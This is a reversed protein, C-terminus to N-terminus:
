SYRRTEYQNHCPVRRFYAQARGVDRLIQARLQEPSEFKKEDRLRRLFEVRIRRPAPGELPALLFTEISLESGGFTPRYGTNTVSPWQHGDFDHTRTIYVGTAPLVEAETSLNLTPVTQKAGIGHGRVVEGELAFPRELLRCARSVDGAEILRRIESSSVMCRRITVSPIAEVRFGLEHGLERLLRTDGAHKYGFRFNEGVLVAKADLAEVLVGRVFQEPTLQAVEHTFPLILVQRIGEQEMLRCRQEPTTMLRPSRTPAVIRTPHPDFTLVAPQWGNERAVECVRRLIMRHGAHVGDFNGITLASPGFGPKAEELSRFIRVGSSM